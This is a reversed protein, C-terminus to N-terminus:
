IILPKEQRLQISHLTVEMGGLRVGLIELLPDLLVRGIEGLLPSLLTNIAIEVLSELPGLAPPLTLIDDEQLANQLSDGLANATPQTQPLNDAAPHPVEFELNQATGPNLPVNIGVPVSTPPLLLPDVVLTASGSISTLGPTAAIVVNSASGDDSFETLEATGQAVAANLTLNVSGVLPLAASASVGLSLQATRAMTCNDGESPGVALLPAQQITIETELGAISITVTSEESAFMAAAMVLSLANLSLETTADENPASVALIDSLRITADNGIGSSLEELAAIAPGNATGAEALGDAMLNLLDGLAMEAELLEHVTSVGGQVRLLDALSLDATALGEYSLVSLSLSTSLLEGLLANLLDANETDIDLLFSGATFTVLSPDAASVAEAHLLVQNGFLGGAVLSAPVSQTIYVRVARQETDTTFRRIGGVTTVNGLEVMNPSQTIQGDYGNRTAANGAAALIAISADVGCGVIERAAEMSAIDAISQLKRQQMWLRGTDVALAMFVVALLLTM